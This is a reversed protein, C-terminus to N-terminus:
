LWKQTKKLNSAEVSINSIICTNHYTIGHQQPPIQQRPQSKQPELLCEQVMLVGLSSPVLKKRFTTFVLGIVFSCKELM